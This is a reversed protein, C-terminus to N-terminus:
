VREWGDDILKEELGGGGKHIILRSDGKKYIKRQSIKEYWIVGVISIVIAGVVQKPNSSTFFIVEVFLLGAAAMLILIGLNKIIRM